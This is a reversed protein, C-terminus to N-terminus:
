YAAQLIEIIQDYDAEKPNYILSGDGLATRSIREFDRAGVLPKGHTDTIDRLREPHRDGSALRLDHNLQRIEAIFHEGRQDEPVEASRDPGVLALLLKELLPRIIELNYSLCHPLLVAMAAGHPVHAVAGVAHGISHVLGVMSNSFAEGALTAALMLAQRGELDTPRELTMRLHKGILEIARWAALDSLPNKGICTFAEVAHTLADMGTAATLHPPLGTTLDPDLVALRPELFPSVFLRKRKVEGDAIVAVRTSESGTGATTPIAIFPIEAPSLINSGELAAPSSPKTGNTGAARDLRILVGKASDLVSGGGLALIADRNQTRFEQALTEILSIDSDPPITDKVLLDLEPPLSDILVQLLGAAKVGPDSLILPSHVGENLLWPGLSALTGSGLVLTRRSSYSFAGPLGLPFPCSSESGYRDALLRRFFKEIGDSGPAPRGAGSFGSDIVLIEEGGPETASLEVPELLIRILANPTGTGPLIKARSVTGCLILGDYEPPLTQEDTFLRIKETEPSSERPIRRLAKIARRRDSNQCLAVPSRVGRLQLEYGLQELAANGYFIGGAPPVTRSM